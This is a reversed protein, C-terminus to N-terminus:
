VHALADDEGKWGGDNMHRDGIPQRLVVVYRAVDQAGLDGGILDAFQHEFQRAVDVLDFGGEFPEAILIDADRQHAV